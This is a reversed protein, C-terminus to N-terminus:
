DNIKLNKENENLIRNMKQERFLIKIPKGDPDTKCKPCFVDGSDLKLYKTECDCRYLWDKKYSKHDEGVFKGLIKNDVLPLYWKVKKSLDYVDDDDNYTYPIDWQLHNTADVFINDGYKFIELDDCMDVFIACNVDNLKKLNQKITKYEEKGIYKEKYAQKVMNLAVDKCTWENGDIIFSSSSSNSVFGNRIKM